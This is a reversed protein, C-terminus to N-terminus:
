VSRRHRWIWSGEIMHFGPQRPIGKDNHQILQILLEVATRGIKRFPPQIGSGTKSTLCLSVPYIGRRLVLPLRRFYDNMEDGLVVVATPKYRQVWSKLNEFREFILPPIKSPGGFYFQESLYAALYDRSRSESKKDLVFGIRHFNLARLERLCALMSQYAHEGVLHLKPQLLQTGISIAFLRDWPLDLKVKSFSSSYIIVAEVNWDQIKETVATTGVESRLSRFNFGLKKAHARAGAFMESAGAREQLGLETCSAIWAIRGYFRVRNSHYQSLSRTVLSTEYGVDKAISQIRLRMSRSIRPHNRLALSVTMKTVGARTAIESLTIM